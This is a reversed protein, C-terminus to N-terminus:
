RWMPSFVFGTWAVGARTELQLHFHCFSLHVQGTNRIGYESRAGKNSTVRGSGSGSACSTAYKACSSANSYQEKVFERELAAM